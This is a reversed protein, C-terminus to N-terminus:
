SDVISNAASAWNRQDLSRIAGFVNALNGGLLVVLVGIVSMYLRWPAVGTDERRKLPTHVM